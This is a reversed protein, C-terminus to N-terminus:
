DHNAGEILSSRARLAAAVALGDENLFYWAIRRGHDHRMHRDVLAPRRKAPLRLRAAVDGSFDIARRPTSTLKLIVKRQQSGLSDALEMLDIGAVVKSTM